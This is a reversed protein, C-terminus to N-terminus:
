MVFLVLMVWLRVAECTKNIYIYIHMEMNCIERYIAFRAMTYLFSIPCPMGNALLYSSVSGLMFKTNHFSSSELLVADQKTPSM